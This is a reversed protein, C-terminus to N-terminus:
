ILSTSREPLDNLNFLKCSDFEVTTILTVDLLSSPKAFMLERETSTSGYGVDTRMSLPRQLYTQTSSHTKFLETFETSSQDGLMNSPKVNEGNLINVRSLRESIFSVFGKLSSIPNYRLDLSTINLSLIPLLSKFTSLENKILVLSNLNILQDIHKIQRIKNFSLDLSEIAMCPSINPFQELAAHTITLSKLNSFIGWNVFNNTYTFGSFNLTTASNAVMKDVYSQLSSESDSIRPLELGGDGLSLNEFFPKEEIKSSLETLIHPMEAHSLRSSYAIDILLKELATTYQDLNSIMSYEIFYEPVVTKAVTYYQTGEEILGNSANPSVAKMRIEGAKMVESQIEDFTDVELAKPAGLVVKVIVAQRLSKAEGDGENHCDLFNNLLLTNSLGGSYLDIQKGHEVVSFIDDSNSRKGHFCLFSSKANKCRSSGDEFKMKMHRNHIRSIRHIQINDNAGCPKVLINILLHCEAVWSEASQEDEFRVNGGTELELLLKRIAMDSQDMIQSRIESHHVTLKQLNETITEFKQELGVQIGDLKEVLSFDGDCYADDIRKINKKINSMIKVVQRELRVNNEGGLSKLTNELANTNRRTTAIRMNYYMRKKLITANIMKRSEESIELTDLVILCPLHYVVHTQYNSLSCIPNDAYNPDSLFLHTLKRLRILHFIERFSSILNGAMNLVKIAINENLSVGIASIKNNGLMLNELLKLNELGEICSIEVDNLNTGNDALSLEKLETLKSLGGIKQIRNNYLFLKKLGRLSNLGDIVSIQTECIWLNELLHCDELGAIVSIDQAIICLSTLGPFRNLEVMKPFNYHCMDISSVM